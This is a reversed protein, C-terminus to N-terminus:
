GLPGEQAIHISCVLAGHGGGWLRAASMCCRLPGRQRPGACLWKRVRESPVCPEVLQEMRGDRISSYPTTQSFMIFVSFLSFMSVISLTLWIVLFVRSIIWFVINKYDSCEIQWSSWKFCEIKRCKYVSPSCPGPEGRFPLVDLLIHLGTVLVGWRSQLIRM